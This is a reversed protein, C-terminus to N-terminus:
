TDKNLKQYYYRLLMLQNKHEDCFFYSTTPYDSLWLKYGILYFYKFNKNFIDKFKLSTEILTTKSLTNKCFSSEIHCFWAGIAISNAKVIYDETSPVYSFECLFEIYYVNLDKIKTILYVHNQKPFEHSFPERYYFKGEELSINIKNLSNM